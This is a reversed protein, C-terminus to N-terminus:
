PLLQTGAGQQADPQYTSTDLSQSQQDDWPLIADFHFKPTSGLGKLLTYIEELAQEVTTAQSLPALNLGVPVDNARFIGGDDGRHFSRDHTDPGAM